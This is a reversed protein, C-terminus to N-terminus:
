WCGPGFSFPRWHNTSSAVLYLVIALKHIPGKRGPTIRKWGSGILSRSLVASGFTILLLAAYLKANGHSPLLSLSIWEIQLDGGVLSTAPLYHKLWTHRNNQKCPTRIHGSGGGIWVKKWKSIGGARGQGGVTMMCPVKQDWGQGGGKMMTPGGLGLGWERSMNLSTWKFRVM